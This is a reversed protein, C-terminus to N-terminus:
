RATKDTDKPKEPAERERQEDELRELEELETLIVESFNDPIPKKRSDM